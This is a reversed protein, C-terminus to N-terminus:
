GAGLWCGVLSVSLWISASTFLGCKCPLGAAAAIVGETAGGADATVGLGPNAGLGAGTGSGWIGGWATGASDEGAGCGGCGLAPSDAGAGATEASRSLARSATKCAIAESGSDDVRGSGILAKFALGSPAGNCSFSGKWCCICGGAGAGAGAGALKSAVALGVNVKGSASLGPVCNPAPAM